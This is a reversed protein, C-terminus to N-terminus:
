GEGRELHNGNYFKKYESLFGAARDQDGAKEAEDIGKLIVLERLLDNYINSNGSKELDRIEELIEERREQRICRNISDIYSKLITIPNEGPIDLTLIHSLLNQDDNNLINFLGEPRYGPKNYLELCNTFIRQYNHNKFPVEGIEAKIIEALSPDEL